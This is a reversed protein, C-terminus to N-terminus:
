EKFPLLVTFEAGGGSHNRVKIKGNHNSVIRAAIPLGLGTGSGKTTFFPTFISNKMSDPIGGGSDAIKIAVAREKGLKAL